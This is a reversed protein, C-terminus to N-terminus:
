AVVVSYWGVNGHICQARPQCKVYRTYTARPPALTERPRRISRDRSRPLSGGSKPRCHGGTWVEDEGKLLWGGSLSGICRSFPSCVLTHARQHTRTYVCARSRCRVTRGKSVAKRAGEWWWRLSILSKKKDVQIKRRIVRRTCGAIDNNHRNPSRIMRVFFVGRKLLM